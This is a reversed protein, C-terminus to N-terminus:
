IRAREDAPIRGACAPRVRDIRLPPQHRAEPRPPFAYEHVSSWKWDEPRKVLGRRLPNLHIYEVTEQYEKVTRLARDFFRGQWLRGLEGRGANIQRTSSVKVSEVILSLGKPYRPGLIAHWHDPLFVWATLRFGQRQRAERLAQTLLQFDGDVMEARTKLLRVTLFFYRDSLVLRRLRSV